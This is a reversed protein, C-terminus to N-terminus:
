KHSTGSGSAVAAVEMQALKDKAEQSITAFQAELAKISADMNTVEEQAASLMEATVLPDETDEIVAKSSTFGKVKKELQDVLHAVKDEYPSVAIALNIQKERYKQVQQQFQTIETKKRMKALPGLSKAEEEARAITKELHPIELQPGGIERTGESKAININRPDEDEDGPEQASNYCELAHELQIAWEPQSYAPSTCDDFIKTKIIKLAQDISPYESEFSFTLLFSEIM